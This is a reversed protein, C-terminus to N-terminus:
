VVPIMPDAAALAEARNAAPPYIWISNIQTKLQKGAERVFKIQRDWGETFVAGWGGLDLCTVYKPQSYPIPEVGLLSAAVNNGASRGLAIAHQCTMLAYNGEDDTAAYAVDGTAFVDAHGLVQLNRDVHLRGFRDREAPVQETLSSARVGVTWIVTKAEIRQGDALTVGDADVSAVTSNLRWEVGLEASAEAILPRPGDGLAAGIESGRDVVIVRIDADAGLASRLRAPMETATEIGTFGGGAVVVTNRASSAPLQSLSKIHQELRVAEEIQDVDFAHEVGALGPRLVKSGSALVLRDYVLEGAVGQGDRYEVKKGAVDIRDAMGKVFRVGVAEFLEGLPASMKHVDAEYFRPRIRLEAQPALVVVETDTHGHLDLLRAASLASWMGGFGAGVILIRQKM